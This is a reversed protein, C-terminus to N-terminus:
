RNRMVIKATQVTETNLRTGAIQRSCVWTLQVVKCNSDTLSTPFQDFTYNTTSRQFISFGLSDCGALLETTVGDKIRVLTRASPNYLFTLKKGDVTTVALHNSSFGTLATAQRLERTMRDLARRSQTELEVYNYGSLAARGTYVFFSAIAALALVVVATAFLYETLSFGVRRRRKITINRTSPVIFVM